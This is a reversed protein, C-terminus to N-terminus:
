SAAETLGADVSRARPTSVGENPVVLAPCGHVRVNVRAGPALALATDSTCRLELGSACRVTATAHTGAFACSVLVACGDPRPELCLQSPRLLVDVTSGAGCAPDCRVVGFETAVGDCRVVGPVINSEGIFSAVFPSAPATYVDYPTGIQELRGHQLVLVRDAIELAEAQDHTVVLATAGAERLMQRLEGRMTRRLAADLNSLPEDLLVVNSGPALARALATRQQQGGSLEHPYRHELGKLECLRMVADIRERRARAHLKRLGFAVNASVTLHPFLAYDQFVFGIGRAEPPVRVRGDDVVRGSIAIVGADAGEFGAILRLMTTKGCGSPGVVTVIEGPQVSLSLDRVAIVGAGFGKVVGRLDISGRADKV